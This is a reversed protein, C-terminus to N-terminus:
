YAQLEQTCLLKRKTETQKLELDFENNRVIM